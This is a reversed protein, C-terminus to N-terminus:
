YSTCRRGHPHNVRKRGGRLEQKLGRWKRIAEAEGWPKPLDRRHRAEQGEPRHKAILAYLQGSTPEWPKGSAYLGDRRGAVWENYRPADRRAFPQGRHKIASMENPM